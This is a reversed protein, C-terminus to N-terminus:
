KVKRILDGVWTGIGAGIIGLGLSWPNLEKLYLGMPIWVLMMIGLIVTLVEFATKM